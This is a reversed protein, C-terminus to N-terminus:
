KTDRDFLGLLTSGFFFCVRRRRLEDEATEQTVSGPCEVRRDVSIMSGGVWGWVGSAFPCIISCIMITAHEPEYIEIKSVKGRM